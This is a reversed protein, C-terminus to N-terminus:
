PVELSLDAGHRALLKVEVTTIKRFFLWTDQFELDHSDRFDNFPKGSCGPFKVATRGEFYALGWFSVILNGLMM